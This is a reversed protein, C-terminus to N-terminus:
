HALLSFFILFESSDTKWKNINVRLVKKHSIHVLLLEGKVSDIIIGRIICMKFLVIKWGVWGFVSRDTFRASEMEGRLIWIAAQSNKWSRWPRGIWGWNGLIYYSNKTFSSRESEWSSRRRSSLVSLSSRLFILTKAHCYSLSVRLPNCPPLPPCLLVYSLFRGTVAPFKWLVIGRTNILREQEDTWTTSQRRRFKGMGKQGKARRRERGERSDCELHM